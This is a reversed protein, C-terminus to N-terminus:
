PLSKEDLSKRCGGCRWAEDRAPGSFIATSCVKDSISASSADGGLTRRVLPKSFAMSFSLFIWAVLAWSSEPDYGQILSFESLSYTINIIIISTTRWSRVSHFDVIGFRILVM